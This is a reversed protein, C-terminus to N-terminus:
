KAESKLLENVHIPDIPLSYDVPLIFLFYLVDGKKVLILDLRLNAKNSNVYGNTLFMDVPSDAAHRISLNECPIHYQLVSDNSLVTEAVDGSYTLFLNGIPQLPTFRRCFNGHDELRNRQYTVYNTGEGYGAEIHVL